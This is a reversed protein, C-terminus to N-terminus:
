KNGAKYATYKYHKILLRLLQEAFPSVSDIIANQLRADLSDQSKITRLRGTAYTQQIHNKLKCFSITFKIDFKADFNQYQKKFHQFLIKFVKFIVRLKKLM